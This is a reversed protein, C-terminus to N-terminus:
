QRALVAVPLSGFTGQAPRCDLLDRYGTVDEGVIRVDLPQLWHRGGSTHAAFHRGAIVLVRQRRHTRAFGIVRDADSGEFALPMYDGDRFLAAFAHRIGLLRRMLQMKIRGDHWHTAFAPWDNTEGVLMQRRGFDVPRRNDPDVLSLDWLETGQYFDPVGPLTLKLTLQSLSNLAGLLSTRRAFGAISEIFAGSREHDLINGVFKTLRKEYSEQPDTWSTSRKGERAAKIAYAQIREIFAGDIPAFPWAGILTQYLMYEHNATPARTSVLAFTLPANLNRWEVVADTWEDAIEALALIRMRADEGRKTDHTATATLGHPMEKRLRAQATHFGAIGLMPDAPDGGVENLALLRPYRYFATDELSKAMLPGTFQQLKLAFNRVRPASYGRDHALDGTVADRLFDFIEPDPGAWDGRAREVVEGILQRDTDSIRVATIYTRYVPFELVYAQLAARLRDLTFDRSSFHGAAIRGLARTLVTFESALMTDLVRLKATRLIDALPAREGTFDRWSRELAPLGTDDLLVHSILNLREYGTTGDVGRLKPMAEGDGLIKEVLIYFGDRRTQPRARRILELLRRTYQAPDRLGDIHDLRIGQLKEEAILRAVLRHMAIFTAGHEPRIGALDNIDFFRRYNIASFAVRWYALHYNQRELLRHLALRHEESDGNYAALGRAMVDAVGPVAALRQKLAPAADYSPERPDRHEHALGILAQGAPTDHAAAAGVIIRIIEAYRRPNIPLKNDFYWAAFSGAEADFKLAIEGAQLADGYPRGLIPLLVGPQERYPLGHWDIDFSAAHPSKEGWELVDLWWANDAHGVGMHNPVFDLILGMGADHLAGSLIAFGAEGGLDDSLRNHDVIDYGHTSGPRAQLFPSAYLHSIGLQKLYPVLAAAKAFDFEKTLQLRYTAIPVYSAM